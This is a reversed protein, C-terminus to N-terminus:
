RLRERRSATIVLYASILLEAYGYVLCDSEVMSRKGLSLGLLRRPQGPCDGPAARHKLRHLGCGITRPKTGLLRSGLTAHIAHMPGVLRPRGAGYDTRLVHRDKPGPQHSRVGSVTSCNSCHSFVLCCYYNTDISKENKGADALPSAISGQM